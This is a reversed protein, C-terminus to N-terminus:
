GRPRISASKASSPMDEGCSFQRDPFPDRAQKKGSLGICGVLWVFVLSLLLWKATLFPRPLTSPM